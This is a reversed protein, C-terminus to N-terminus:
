EEGGNRHFEVKRKGIALYGNAVMQPVTYLGNAYDYNILSPKGDKLEYLAPTEQFKGRLYTFKEDRWVQQLGLSAGKKQDWAYDFHLQGPYQGRDKEAQATLTRKDNADKAQAEAVATKLKELEAAPVFVPM